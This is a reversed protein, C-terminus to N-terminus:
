CQHMVPPANFTLKLFVFVRKLIIKGYVDPDDLCDRERLYFDFGYRSSELKRPYSAKHNPSYNWRGVNRVFRIGERQLNLLRSSTVRLFVAISVGFRAFGHWMVARLVLKHLYPHLTVTLLTCHWLVHAASYPGVASTHMSQLCVVSTGTCISISKPVASTVFAPSSEPDWLAQCHSRM